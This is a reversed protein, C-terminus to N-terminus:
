CHRDPLYRFTFLFILQSVLSTGRNGSGRRHVNNCDYQCIVQLKKHCDERRVLYWEMDDPVYGYLGDWTDFKHCYTAAEYKHKSRGNDNVPTGDIWQLPGITLSGIPQPTLDPNIIGTWIEDM